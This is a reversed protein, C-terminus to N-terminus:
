EAGAPVEPSGQALRMDFPLGNARVVARLCVEIGTAFNLGLDAFIATAKEKVESDVRITTAKLEGM